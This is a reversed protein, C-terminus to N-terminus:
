GHGYLSVFKGKSRFQHDSILFEICTRCPRSFLDEIFSTLYDENLTWRRWKSHGRIPKFCFTPSTSSHTIPAHRLYPLSFFPANDTHVSHDLRKNSSGQKSLRAFSRSDPSTDFKLPVAGFTGIRFYLRSHQLYTHSLWVM